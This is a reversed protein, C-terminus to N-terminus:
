DERRAADGHLGPVVAMVGPLQVREGTERDVATIMVPEGDLEELGEPVHDWDPDRPLQEPEEM